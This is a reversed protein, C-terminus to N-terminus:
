VNLRCFERPLVCVDSFQVGKYVKEGVKGGSIEGLFATLGSDGGGFSVYFSKRRNTIEFRYEEGSDGTKFHLVAGTSKDKFPGSVGTNYTPLWRVTNNTRTIVTGNKKEKLTTPSLSPTGYLELEGFQKKGDKAVYGSSHVVGDLGTWEMLTVSWPGAVGRSVRWGLTTDFWSGAAWSHMHGGIGKFRLPRGRFTLDATFIATPIVQVLHIKHLLETSVPKIKDQVEEQTEGGPYVPQSLSTLTFHGKVDATNLEVRASSGNSAINHIYTKGPATWVGRVRGINQQAKAVGQLRLEDASVDEIVAENMWDVHNFHTGDSFTADLEVRLHGHGLLAYSADRALTFVIGSKGDDAVSDFYWQEFVPGKIGSIRWAALPDASSTSFEISEEKQYATTRNIRGM